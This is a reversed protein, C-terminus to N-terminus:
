KKYNDLDSIKLVNTENSKTLNNFDRDSLNWVNNGDTIHIDFLLELEACQYLCRYSNLEGTLKKSILDTYICIDNESIYYFIKRYHYNIKRYEVYNPIYRGLINLSRKIMGVYAITKSEYEKSNLLYYLGKSIESLGIIESSTFQTENGNFSFVLNGNDVKGWTTHILKNRYPVLYEYLKIIDKVCNDGLLDSCMTNRLNLNELKDMKEKFKWPVPNDQECERILFEMFMDIIKFSTSFLIPLLNVIIYNKVVGESFRDYIRLQHCKYKHNEFVIDAQKLFLQQNLENLSNVVMFYEYQTSSLFQELNDTM